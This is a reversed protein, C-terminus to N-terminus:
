FLRRPRSASRRSPTDSDADRPSLCANSMLKLTLTVHPRKPANISCEIFSLPSAVLRATPQIILRCNLLHAAIFRGGDTVRSPFSVNQDVRPLITICPRDNQVVKSTTPIKVFASNPWYVMKREETVNSPVSASAPSPIAMPLVVASSLSEAG